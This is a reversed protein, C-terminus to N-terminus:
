IKLFIKQAASIIRDTKMFSKICFINKQYDSYRSSDLYLKPVSIDKSLKELLMSGNKFQLEMKNENIRMMKAKNLNFSDLHDLIFLSNEWIEYVFYIGLPEYSPCYILQEAKFHLEMYFSDQNCTQWSGLIEKEFKRDKNQSICSVVVLIIWIVNNKIM